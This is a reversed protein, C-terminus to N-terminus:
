EMAMNLFDNIPKMAQFVEVIQKKYNKGLVQKDTVKHWMTFSKYRLLDINPNDKKYGKPSTKVQEGVLTGFQKKFDESALLKRFDDANYDIEQRIKALHESAPMYCGGAMFSEGNPQIQLYYGAWHSRRGGKTISAGFNLKYPSKNKSFRIDRNLRFVCDKPTLGEINPDFAAVEDIVENTLEEFEKKAQQYVKKNDQMWERTNNQALDTLFNLINQTNM